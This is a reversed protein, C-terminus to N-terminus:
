GNYWIKYVNVVQLSALSEDIMAKCKPCVVGSVQLLTDKLQAERTWLLIEGIRDGEADVRFDKYDKRIDDELAEDSLVKFKPEQKNM